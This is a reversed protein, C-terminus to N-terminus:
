ITVVIARPYPVLCCSSAGHPMGSHDQVAVEVISLLLPTEGKQTCIQAESFVSLHVMELSPVDRGDLMCHLWHLGGPLPAPSVAFLVFPLHVVVAFIFLYLLAAAVPGSWTLPGISRGQM